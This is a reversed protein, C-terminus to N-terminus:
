TAIIELKINAIRITLLTPKMLFEKECFRCVSDDRYQKEVEKCLIVDKNTNKFYFVMKIELKRVDDLLLDVNDSDLNSEYYCSQLSFIWNLCWIFVM